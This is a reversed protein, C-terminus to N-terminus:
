IKALKNIATKFEDLTLESFSGKNIELESLAEDVSLGKNKCAQTLAVVKAETIHNASEKVFTETHDEKDMEEASVVDLRLAKRLARAEARTTAMATPHRSFTNDCCNIDPICDSADAFRIPTGLDGFNDNRCQFTVTFECKVASIGNAKDWEMYETNVHQDIVPGIVLNAVRRLGNIKPYKGEVLENESFIAMIDEQSSLEQVNYVVEEEEAEEEPVEEEFSERDVIFNLEKEEDDTESLVNIASEFVDTENVTEEMDSLAEELNAKGRIDEVEDKPMGLEVLRDKIECVKM